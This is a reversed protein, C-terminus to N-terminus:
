ANLRIKHIRYNFQQEAYIKVREVYHKLTHNEYSKWSIDDSVDYLTVHEKSEHLRLGRGISQLLKIRGKGPHAIVINHLNKVNVGTSFTGVSCVVIADTHTEMLKRIEERVDVSVDGAVFYVPRDPVAEKIADYLPKGHEAVYRFMVFTNGKLSIALNKIFKNRAENKILYAIEANYDPKNKAFLKRVHDPYQLTLAEIKLKAVDGRDMLEKTTIVQQVPGFLGELVLKNTETGDLTGTLGIKNPCDTLKTMLTTLSKAKFTHAEDGIVLKYRDFWKKPLQYVSQWTTVVVPKDTNKDHGSYIRHCYKESDFGYDEFDGFMQNVLSTTPVVVLTPVNFYRILLYIIFSKGSATPSLLLTRRKRVAHTFAEVQYDRPPLSPNLEQIWEIARNIDFVADTFRAPIDISYKRDSCFKELRSLLGVYLLCTFQNFLRIKGDWMKNRYKPMFKYGPVFFTFYDSIEQAIGADCRIKINVDDIYEIRVDM